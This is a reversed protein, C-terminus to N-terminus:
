QALQCTHMPAAFAIAPAIMEAERGLTAPFHKAAISGPNAFSKAELRLISRRPRHRFRYFNYIEPLLELLLSEHCGM